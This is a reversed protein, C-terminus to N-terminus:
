PTLNIDISNMKSILANYSSFMLNLDSKYIDVSEKNLNYSEIKYVFTKLVRLRGIIEPRNFLQPINNTTIKELDSKISSIISKHDIKQLDFSNFKSYVNMINIWSDFKELKTSDLKNLKLFENNVYENLNSIEFKSAESLSSKKESCSIFFLSCALLARFIV